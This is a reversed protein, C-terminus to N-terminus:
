MYYINKRKKYTRQKYKKRKNLFGSGSLSNMIAVVERYGKTGKKPICWSSNGYNYEKLAQTWYNVM